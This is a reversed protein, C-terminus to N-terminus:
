CASTAPRIWPPPIVIRVICSHSIELISGILSDHYSATKCINSFAYMRGVSSKVEPVSNLLGQLVHLECRSADALCPGIERWQSTM